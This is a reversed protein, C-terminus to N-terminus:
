EDGAPPLTCGISDCFAKRESYSFGNDIWWQANNCLTCDDDLTTDMDAAKLAHFVRQRLPRDVKAHKDHFTQEEASAKEDSM